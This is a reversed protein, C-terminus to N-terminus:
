HSDSYVRFDSRSESWLEKIQEESPTSPFSFEAVYTEFDNMDTVYVDWTQSKKSAKSFVKVSM